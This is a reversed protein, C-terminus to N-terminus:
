PHPFQLMGPKPPNNKGRAAVFLSEEEWENDGDFGLGLKWVKEDTSSPLSTSIMGRGWKIKCSLSILVSLWETPVHPIM